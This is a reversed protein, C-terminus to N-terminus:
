RIFTTKEKALADELWQPHMKLLNEAPLETIPFFKM